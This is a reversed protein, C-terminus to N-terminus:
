KMLDKIVQSERWGVTQSVFIGVVAESLKTLTYEPLLENEKNDKIAKLLLALETETMAGTAQTNTNTNFM